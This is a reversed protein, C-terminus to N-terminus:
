GHELSDLLRQADAKEDFATGLQMVRQLIERAEQKEGVQNLAKALHYAIAANKPREATAARLLPVADRPRDVSLLVSAFTDAILPYPAIRYADAALTLAREDKEKQYILALNNLVVFNDPQVALVKEYLPKAEVDDHEDTYINALILRPGPDTHDKVWSQLLQKAEDPKGSLDLAEGLKAAILDSPHAKQEEALLSAAQDPHGSRELINAVIVQSSIPEQQGFARAIALAQDPNGAQLEFDAFLQVFTPNHPVLSMARRFSARAGDKDGAAAQLEAYRALVQPNDSAAQAAKAFEAAAGKADGAETRLSAVRDIVALNGPFRGELDHGFAQAKDWDKAAGYIQLLALGPLPNEPANLQTKRLLDAAGAEDKQRAEVRALAINDPVSNEDQKLIGQLMTKADDLRDLAIYAGVLDRRPGILNPNKDVISKFIQAADTFNGQATRVSGLLGQAVPDKDNQKVLAEAVQSAEAVRGERLDAIILPPGAAAVGEASNALRDLEALGTQSQGSDVEMAALRAEAFPDNPKAQAAKQFLQLAEDRRGIAFYAQALVSASDSDTPNTDLVPKLVNIAGTYDHKRLDIRALLRRAIAASPFRAVYKSLAAAAQEYEGLQYKVVGQVYYGYPLVNFAPTAESLEQDADQLKGERALLLGHLFIISANNQVLRRARDIDASAEPLKNQNMFIDARSTLAAVDNPQKQLLADLKATAGELDGRARLLLASVRDIGVDDPSIANAADVEKQAGALDRKSLLLQAMASKQQIGTEDLREAERLLPEAQSIEQLELHALGLTLKVDSEAKASRDDPQVDRFLVDFKNQRMLAQALLPDVEDPAGKDSRALRAEAEAAPLNGEDLYIKALAIHPAPDSPKDQAAKRLEIEQRRLDGNTGPSQAGTAPQDPVTAARAATLGAVLTLATTAALAFRLPGHFM